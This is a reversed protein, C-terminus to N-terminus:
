SLGTGDRRARGRRAEGGVARNTGSSLSFWASSASSGAQAFNTPSISAKRASPLQAAIAYGSPRVIVTVPSGYASRGIRTRAQADHLLPPVGSRGGGGSWIWG